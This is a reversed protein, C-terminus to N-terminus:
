NLKEQILIFKTDTKQIYYFYHDNSSILADYDNSASDNILTRFNTGDFDWALLSGDEDTRYMIYNDLFRTKNDVCDYETFDDIEADFVVINNDARFITFENNFSVEVATPTVSLEKKIISKMKFSTDVVPFDKARHVHLVNGITYAIYSMSNYNTISYTIPTNADPIEAITIPAREGLRLYMISKKGEVPLTSYVVSSEYLKYDYVNNAFASSIIKGALDIRILDNNVVAILKDGVENEFKASTITKQDATKASAGITDSNAEFRVYDKTINISDKISKLNIVVWESNEGATKILVKENNKSWEISEINYPFDGNDTGSFIGRVDIKTFKPTNSFDTIYYWETTKATALIAATRDRSVHFFEISDFDKITTRERNEKFLKPYELRLLWGPTVTVEKKWSTYGDKKLEITHKGGPLMKSMNTLSSDKEGDIYVEAGTPKTRLSVLGNQELSLDANFRWGAVVAVLVFVIAVVSLTMFIDTIVVKIARKRRLEEIEDM